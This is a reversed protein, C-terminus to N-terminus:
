EKKKKPITNLVSVQPLFAIAKWFMRKPLFGGFLPEVGFFFWAIITFAAFCYSEVFLYFSTTTVEWMRDCISEKTGVYDSLNAYIGDVKSHHLFISKKVGWVAFATYSDKISSFYTTHLLSYVPHGVYNKPSYFSKGRFSHMETGIKLEKNVM